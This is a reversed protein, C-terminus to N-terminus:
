FNTFQFFYHNGWLSCISKYIPPHKERKKKLLWFFILPHFTLVPQRLQLFLSINLHCFFSFEMSLLLPGPFYLLMDVFQWFPVKHAKIDFTIKLKDCFLDWFSNLKRQKFFSKFTFWAQTIDMLSVAKTFWKLDGVADLVASEVSGLLVYILPGWLGISGVLVLFGAWNGQHSSFRKHPHTSEGGCEDTLRSTIKQCMCTDWIEM